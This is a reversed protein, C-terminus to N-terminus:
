ALCEWKFTYKRPFRCASEVLWARSTTHSILKAVEWIASPSAYASSFLYCAAFHQAIRRGGAASVKGDKNIMYLGTKRGM